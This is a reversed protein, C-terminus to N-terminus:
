SLSLSLSIDVDIIGPKEERKPPPNPHLPHIPPLKSMKICPQYSYIHSQM